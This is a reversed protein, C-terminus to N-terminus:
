SELIENIRNELKEALETNGERLLKIKLKSLSEIREKQTPPANEASDMPSPGVEPGPPPGAMPAGGTPPPMGPAGMGQAMM